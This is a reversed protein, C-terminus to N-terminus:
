LLPSQRAGLVVMYHIGALPLWAFALGAAGSLWGAQVVVAIPLLCGLTIGGTALTVRLHGFRRTALQYAHSRHAEYIREGRLLRRILTLTADVIFVGLLILWGHFLEVSVWAAQISMVGLIMGLFGSGSDGMFISAPPFNWALFGAVSAALLLPAVGMASEGELLYLLAGGICVCIAEVSAIGDIGDMFNYLNLLWVLYLAGFGIGIWGPSVPRGLLELSPLGGTWALAWFAALFHVLLRWRAPVHDHDDLFGVMAVLAGPCVIAWCAQWSLMGLAAVVPLAVMTTMVFALGGGRPTTASHSSRANPEDVLRRAMAYRRVLGTLAASAVFALALLAAIRM